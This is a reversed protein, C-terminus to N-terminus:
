RRRPAQNSLPPKSALYLKSLKDRAAKAAAGIRDWGLSWIVRRRWPWSELEERSPREPGTFVRGDLAAIFLEFAAFAEDHDDASRLTGFWHRAWKYREYRQRATCHVETLWGSAPPSALAGAWLQDAQETPQLFGALTLGRAILGAFNGALDREIQDILWDTQDSDQVGVALDFLKADDNAEALMLQRTEEGTSGAITTGQHYLDGSRFNSRASERLGRTVVAAKSGPALPEVAELARMLPFREMIFWTANKASGDVFPRTWRVLDEGYRSVLEDWGATDQLLSRPFSRSKASTLVDLEAHLYEAWRELYIPQDPYAEALWGLVEPHVRDAIQGAKAASSLELAFSGAAAEERDMDPSWRWGSDALEEALAADKCQYALRFAAARAAAEPHQFLLAIPQWGSPMVQCGASRLYDLWMLLQGVPAGSALDPRLSEVDAAQAPALLRKVWKGLLPPEPLQRLIEIQEGPPRGALTILQLELPQGFGLKELRTSLVSWETLLDDSLIPLSGPLWEVGKLDISPGERHLSAAAIRWGKVLWGPLWPVRSSALALKLRRRLLNGLDRPSWRSLALMPPSSGSTFDSRATLLAKSTVSGALARLRQVFEGPLEISPDLPDAALDYIYDLPRDALHTDQRRPWSIECAPKDTPGFAEDHLSSAAPTALAELLSTAAGKAIEGGLELLERARALVAEETTQPDEENWRLVWALASFQRKGGLIARTIAWATFVKILPARPLWSLLETARYSGWAQRNPDVEALAIGFHQAVGEAAAADARARTAQRRKAALEDDLLDGLVEGALPDLWYRSFWQLLKSSIAQEVDPWQVANAFGKVLVEDARGLSAHGFWEQEAIRVFLDPVCGILRWYSEFDDPSFNQAGLWAKLLEQRVEPSASADITAFTAAHKLIRVSLDSGQLPDLAQGLIEKCEDASGGRRVDALLALGLAAPVRASDLRLSGAEDRRLWGGDILESFVMELHHREDEGDRSLRDLVQKRTLVGTELDIERGLRAVFGVFEQHSMAQQARHHRHRWDEFILREPTIEGGQELERRREIAIGSLRPSRMLEILKPHLNKRELCHAELLSDLEADDFQSVEITTINLQSDALGKLQSHWHDPRCTLGVAVKSRWDPTNLSVLLDSWRRFPWNQNLGDIIALIVPHDTDASSWRALRKEWFARDRVKTVHHLATALLAPGDFTSVDRAPIVLTLPFDPDTSSQEIWWSLTAWTKGMGERGLVAAPGAPGTAWWANLSKQVLPRAIRVADPAELTAYSDFETRASHLDQMQCITWERVKARAAALGISADTLQHRLRAFEAVFAPHSGIAAVDAAAKTGLHYAITMPAAACLVALPPPMAGGEPWDLILVAIGLEDGTEALEKSDGGSISRTTALVWLDLSAFEEAADRLKSKLQDLPLSTSTGYHKGEMGVVLGSGYPDGISDVGGQPGSKMLRFGQGTVEALADRVFGEFGDSGTHPLSM